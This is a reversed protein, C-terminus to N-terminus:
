KLAAYGEKRNRSHKRVAAVICILVILAPAGWNAYQQAPISRVPLADEMVFDDSADWGQWQNWDLTRPDPYENVILNYDDSTRNYIERCTGYV